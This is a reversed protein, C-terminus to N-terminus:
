LKSSSAVSDGTYKETRRFHLLGPQEGLSRAGEVRYHRLLWMLRKGPFLHLLPEFLQKGPIRQLEKVLYHNLLEQERERM